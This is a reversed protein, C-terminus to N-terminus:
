EIPDGPQWLPKRPKTNPHEKRFLTVREEAEEITAYCGLYHRKGKHRVLATFRGSNPYVGTPLERSM